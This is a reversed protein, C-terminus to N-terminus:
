LSTSSVSIKKRKKVRLNESSANETWKKTEWLPDPSMIEPYLSMRKLLESKWKSSRPVWCLMKSWRLSGSFPFQHQEAVEAGVNPNTGITIRTSHLILCCWQHSLFRMATWGPVLFLIAGKHPEHWFLLSHSLATTLPLKVSSPTIENQSVVLM